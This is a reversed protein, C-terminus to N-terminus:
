AERCSANVRRMVSAPSPESRAAEEIRLTLGASQEGERVAEGRVDEDPMEGPLLRLVDEMRVQGAEPPLRNRKRAGVSRGPGDPRVGAYRGDDPDAEAADRFLEGM